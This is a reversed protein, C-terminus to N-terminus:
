AVLVKAPGSQHAPAIFRKTTREQVLEIEGRTIWQYMLDRADPLNETTLVCTIVLERIRDQADSDTTDVWFSMGSAPEEAPDFQIVRVGIGADERFASFIPNGDRCPTGDAFHTSIYPERWRREEGATRVLERWNDHWLREAQEYESVDSLFNPFLVRAMDTM